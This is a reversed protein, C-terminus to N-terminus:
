KPPPNMPRITDPSQTINEHKGGAQLSGEKLSGNKKQNEKEKNIEKAIEYVEKQFSFALTSFTPNLYRNHAIYYFLLDFDLLADDKEIISLIKICWNYLESQDVKWEESLSAMKNYLDNM